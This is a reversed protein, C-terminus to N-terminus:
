ARGTTAPGRLLGELWAAAPSAPEITTRNRNVTTVHQRDTYHGLLKALSMATERAAADGRKHALQRDEILMTAIDGITIATQEAARARLETVRPAIKPAALLRSAQVHVTAPKTTPGVKFATRYAESASMGEVVARAFAERQPSLKLPESTLMALM